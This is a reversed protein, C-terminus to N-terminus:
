DETLKSDASNLEVEVNCRKQQEREKNPLEPGETLHVKWSLGISSQMALALCYVRDRVSRHTGSSRAFNRLSRELNIIGIEVQRDEVMSLGSWYLAYFDRKTGTWLDSQSTPNTTALTGGIRAM